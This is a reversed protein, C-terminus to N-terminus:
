KDAQAIKERNDAWSHFKLRPIINVIQETAKQNIKINEKQSLVVAQDETLYISAKAESPNNKPVLVSVILVDVNDPSAFEIKAKKGEICDMTTKALLLPAEGKAFKTVEIDAVYEKKGSKSENGSPSVTIKHEFEAASLSACCLFSLLYKKM